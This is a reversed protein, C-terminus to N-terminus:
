NMVTPLYTPYEYDIRFGTARLSTSITESFFCLDIIYTYNANDITEILITTDSVNAYGTNTNSTTIALDQYSGGGIPVRSLFASVSGGTTDDYYYLTFKNVKAGNPLYVPATAYLDGDSLSNYIEDADYYALKGTVTRQEFASPHISILGPGGPVTVVRPEEGGVSEGHGIPDEGGEEATVRKDVAVLILAGILVVMIITRRFEKTNM